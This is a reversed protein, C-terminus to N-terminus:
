RGAVRFKESSQTIEFAELVQYVEHGAPGLSDSRQFFLLQVLPMDLKM